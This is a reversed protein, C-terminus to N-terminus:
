IKPIAHVLSDMFDNMSKKIFDEHQWPIFHSAGRIIKVTVHAPNQEKIFTANEVPVFKDKDGHIVLIPCQIQPLDAAMVGVEKKFYKLETNSPRFAGPVLYKLPFVDLVYRYYEKTELAPSVSGALVICGSVMTKLQSAMELIIPGGLSHGALFLPQNNNHKQIFQELLRCQDLVKEAAGFDSYGFGPRDISIIRYKKIWGTDALYNKFADWSGPSGHIFFITPGTALGTQVYHLQHGDITDTDFSVSIAKKQFDKLAAADSTRFKFTCQALVLWSLLIILSLRIFKKKRSYPRPM